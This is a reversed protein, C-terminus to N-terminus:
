NGFVFFHTLGLWERVWYTFLYRPETYASYATVNEVNQDKAILSARYQHFGDTVLTMDHSMGMDDLIDLTFKINEYTSTSKDELIIRDEEIGKEVLYNKMALAESIKENSGQGGSVICITDTHKELAKYAADLRRRLMRSPKEGNVKCGLVVIVNPEDPNNEQAKYMLVSLVTVYAIGIVILSSLVILLIKGWLHVWVSSVFSRFGSFNVTIALSAVSFLIGAINGSCLIPIPILFLILLFIEMAILIYKFTM